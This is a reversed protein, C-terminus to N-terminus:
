LDSGKLSIFHVLPSDKAKLSTMELLTGALLQPSQAGGSGAAEGHM